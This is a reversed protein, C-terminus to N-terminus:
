EVVVIEAATFERLFPVVDPATGVVRDLVRRWASKQSKGLVIVDANITEAEELIAEELLFSRSVYVSVSQVTMVPTVAEDIEEPTTFRGNQLLDIHLM